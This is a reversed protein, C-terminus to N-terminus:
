LSFFRTYLAAFSNKSLTPNLASISIKISFFIGTDAPSAPPLVSAAPVKYPKFSSKSCGRLRASSCSSQAFSPESKFKQKSPPRWFVEPLPSINSDSGNSSNLTDNIFGTFKPILAFSAYVFNEAFSLVEGWRAEGASPPPVSFESTGFNLLLIKDFLKLCVDVVSLM